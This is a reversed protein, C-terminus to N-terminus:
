HFTFVNTLNFVRRITQQIQLTAMDALLFTPNPLAEEATITPLAATTSTMTASGGLTASLTGAALAAAHAAAQATTPSAQPSLVPAEKKVPLFRLSPPIPPRSELQMDLATTLDHPTLHIFYALLCRRLSFHSVCDALPTEDCAGEADSGKIITFKLLDAGGPTAEPVTGAEPEEEQPQSLPLAPVGAAAASSPAATDPRSAAVSNAESAAAARAADGAPDQSFFEIAVKRKKPPPEVRALEVLVTVWQDALAFRRQEAKAKEEETPGDAARADAEAKERAELAQQAERQAKEVAPDVADAEMQAIMKAMAADKTDEKSVVTTVAPGALLAAAAAAAAAEADLKVRKAAATLLLPSDKVLRVRVLAKKAPRSSNYQSGSIEFVSAVLALHEHLAATLVVSKFPKRCYAADEVSPQVNIGARQMRNLLIGPLMQQSNLEGLVPSIPNTLRAHDSAIEFEVPFRSGQLSLEYTHLNGPVPLEGAKAAGPSSPTSAAPKLTWSRYPFDLARPQIIAVPKLLTLSLHVLGAEPEYKTLSVGEQRWCGHRADWWGFHPERDDLFVYGPLMFSVRLPAQSTAGALAGGHAQQAAAAAAPSQGAQGEGESAAPYPVIQIARSLPTIDRMLWGKLKKPPPPLALQEINIIGGVSVFNITPQSPLATASLSAQESHAALSTAYLEEAQRALEFLDREQGVPMEPPDATMADAFPDARATRIRGNVSQSHPSGVGSSQAAALSADWHVSTHDFLTRLVRISTRSKQLAAPLEINFGINPFEIRKVRLPAGDARKATNHVWLGFAIDPTNHSVNMVRTDHNEFEDYRALFQATLQDLKLTTLNRLLHIFEGCWANKKLQLEERAEANVEELLDVVRETTSCSEILPRYRLNPPNAADDEERWMSLYTNLSSEQAVDPLPNCELWKDWSTKEYVASELTAVDSARAELYTSDFSRQQHLREAEEEAALQKEERQREEQDRKKRAEEEKRRSEQEAAQEAEAVLREQEALVSKKIKPPAKKKPVGSSSAPSGSAAKKKKDGTAPAKSPTTSM